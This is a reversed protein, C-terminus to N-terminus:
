SEQSCGTAGWSVDGMQLREEIARTCPHVHLFTADEPGEDQALADAVAEEETDGIGWIVPRFGDNGVAVFRRPVSGAIRAVIPADDGERLYVCAHADEEGVNFWKVIPEKFVSRIAAEAEERTGFREVNSNHVWTVRFNM